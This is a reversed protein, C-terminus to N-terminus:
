LSPTRGGTTGGPSRRTPISCASEVELRAVRRASASSRACGRREAERLAREPSRREYVISRTSTCDISGRSPRIRTMAASRTTRGGRSPQRHSCLPGPAACADGIGHDDWDAQDPNACAEVDEGCLAPPCNDHVAPGADWWGDCDADLEPDCPGSYDLEGWWS